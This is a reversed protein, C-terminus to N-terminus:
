RKRCEYRTRNINAAAILAGDAKGASTQVIVVEGVVADVGGIDDVLCLLRENTEGDGRIGDLLEANVGHEEGRFLAAGGAALYRDDRSGAPGAEM